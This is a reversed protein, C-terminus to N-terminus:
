RSPQGPAPNLTASLTAREQPTLDASQLLNIAAPRGIRTVVQSLSSQLIQLRDKENVWAASNQFALDPSYFQINHAMFSWM